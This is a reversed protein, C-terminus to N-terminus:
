FFLFRHKAPSLARNWESTKVPHSATTMASPQLKDTQLNFCVLQMLLDFFTNRFGEIVQTLIEM